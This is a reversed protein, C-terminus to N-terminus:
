VVKKSKKWKMNIDDEIIQEGYIKCSNNDREDIVIEKEIEEDIQYDENECENQPGNTM